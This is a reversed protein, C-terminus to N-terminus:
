VWQKGTISSTSLHEVESFTDTSCHLLKYTSTGHERTKISYFDLTDDDFSVKLVLPAPHGM